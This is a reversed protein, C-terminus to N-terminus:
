KHKIKICPIEPTIDGLMCFLIFHLVYPTFRRSWDIFCSIQCWAYPRNINIYKLVVLRQLFIEDSKLMIADNCTIFFNMSLPFILKSSSRGYNYIYSTRRYSQGIQPIVQDSIYCSASYIAQYSKIHSSRIFNKM